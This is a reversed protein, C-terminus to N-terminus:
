LRGAYANWVRIAYVLPSHDILYRHHALEVPPLLRADDLVPFPKLMLRRNRLWGSSFQGGGRM